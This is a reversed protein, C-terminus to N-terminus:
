RDSRAKLLCAPRSCAFQIIETPADIHIHPSYARMTTSEPNKKNILYQNRLTIGLKKPPLSLHRKKKKERIIHKKLAHASRDTPWFDHEFLYLSSYSVAPFTIM